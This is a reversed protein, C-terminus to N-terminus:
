REFKTKFEKFYTRSVPVEIAGMNLVMGKFSTVHDLNVIFSRHVRCFINDDLLNTVENLSSRYLHRERTTQIELYKDDAKIWIIESLPVNFKGLDSSLTLYNKQRELNTFAIELTSYIDHENFPKVIYAVPNLSSAEDVTDKDAFSTIFIFPTKTNQKLYKAIGFGQNVGHMKIDLLALQPSTEDIMDIATEKSAAIGVVDYGLDTLISNLQEAIFIDDDVVLIKKKM